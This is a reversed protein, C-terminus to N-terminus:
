THNSSDFSLNEHIVALLARTAVEYPCVKECYGECENCVDPNSSKLEQYYQM